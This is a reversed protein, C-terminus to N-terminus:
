SSVILQKANFFLKQFQKITLFKHTTSQAQHNTSTESTYSVM